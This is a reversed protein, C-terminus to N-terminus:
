AIAPAQGSSLYVRIPLIMMNHGSFYLRRQLAYPTHNHLLRSFLSEREFVLKGAFFVATPFDRVADNCLKELETILDVGLALRSEAYWGLANAFEVLSHLDEEKAKRLSEIERAGKFRGSDIVGVSVFVINKFHNPFLRQINLLTHITVGDFARAVVVATAAGPQKSPVPRLDPQFPINILTEDLGKL